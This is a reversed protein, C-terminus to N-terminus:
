EFLGHEIAYRVLEVRSRLELKSMLNARHSEVTRVSLSLENAIQGNTYGKAILHLVEIERPTLSEVAPEAAVPFLSTERLLARTM